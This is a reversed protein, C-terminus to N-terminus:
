HTSQQELLTMGVPEGSELLWIRALYTAQPDPRHGFFPLGIEWESDGAEAACSGAAMNVLEQMVDRVDELSVESDEKALLNSALTTAFPLTARFVINMRRNAKKSYLPIGAEEYESPFPQEQERYELAIFFMTELVESIANKMVEQWNSNM